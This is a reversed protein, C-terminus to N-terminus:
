FIRVVADLQRIIILIALSKEGGEKVENSPNRLLVYLNNLKQCLHQTTSTCAGTSSKLVPSKIM